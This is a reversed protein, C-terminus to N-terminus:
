INTRDSSTRAKAACIYVCFNFIRSIATFCTDFVFLLVVCSFLLVGDDVVFDNTIEDKIIARLCDM